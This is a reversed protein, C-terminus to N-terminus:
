LYDGTQVTEFRSRLQQDGLFPTARLPNVHGRLRAYYDRPDANVLFDWGTEVYAYPNSTIM